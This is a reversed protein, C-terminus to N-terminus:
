EKGQWMEFEEETCAKCMNDSKFLPRFDQGCNICARQDPVPNEPEM